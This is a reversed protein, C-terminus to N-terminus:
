PRRGDGSRAHASRPSLLVAARLLVGIEVHFAQLFDDLAVLVDVGARRRLTERLVRERLEFRRDFGTKLLQIPSRAILYRSSFSMRPIRPFATLTCAITKPLMPSSLAVPTANVRLGEVALVLKVALKQDVRLAFVDDGADARREIAVGLHALPAWFLQFRSSSILFM